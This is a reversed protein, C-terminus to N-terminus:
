SSFTDLTNRLRFSELEALQVDGPEKTENIEIVLSDKRIDDKKTKEHRRKDKKTKGQRKKDERTKGQRGHNECENDRPWRSKGWRRIALPWRHTKLSSDEYKIPLDSSLTMARYRSQTTVHNRSLMITHCRSQTIGEYMKYLLLSTVLVMLRKWCKGKKWKFVIWDPTEDARGDM